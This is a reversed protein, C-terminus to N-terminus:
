AVYGSLYLLQPFPLSFFSGQDRKIINCTIVMLNYSQSWYPTNVSDSLTVFCPMKWRKHHSPCSSADRFLQLLFWIFVQSSSMNSVRMNQFVRSTRHSIGAAKWHPSPWDNGWSFCNSQFRFFYEEQIHVAIALLWSFWFCTMLNRTPKSSLPCALYGMM